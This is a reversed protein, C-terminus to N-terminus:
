VCELDMEELEDAYEEPGEEEEDAIDFMFSDFEVEKKKKVIDPNDREYEAIKQMFESGLMGMTVNAGDDGSEVSLEEDQFADMGGMLEFSKYKLYQQQKEYKIRNTFSRWIIMNIYGYASPKGKKESKKIPNFNHMYKVCNLIGDSKMESLYTYQSFNHRKGMQEAMDWFALGVAEPIRPREEKLNGNEDHFSLKWDTLIQTLHNDDIYFIQKRSQTDKIFQDQADQKEQDEQELETVEFDEM